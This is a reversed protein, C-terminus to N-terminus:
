FRFQGNIHLAKEDSFRGEATLSFRACDVITVGVAYGWNKASQLNNLTAMILAPNSPIPIQVRDFDASACSWTVGGYISLMRIRHAIGVGVQWEHYRVNLNDDYVSEELGNPKSTIRSIHPKTYFYQTEAGLTTWGCKWLVSRAGVSWSFDSDTEIILRNGLTTSSNPAFTSSNSDIFLSSAGLTLYFDLRDYFNFVFLAANTFIECEEIQARLEKSDVELHRNFVYDGYFGLRFSTANCWNACPDGPNLCHGEWIFGDLLLAPDSPNGLPLAETAGCALIALATTFLKKM